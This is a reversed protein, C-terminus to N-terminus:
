LGSEMEHILIAVAQRRLAFGAELITRPIANHPWGREHEYVDYEAPPTGSRPNRAGPDTFIIGELEDVNLDMRRAAKLAGTDVHTIKVLYRHAGVAMHKVARGTAGSPQLAAIARNNARQAKQLDTITFSVDFGSM